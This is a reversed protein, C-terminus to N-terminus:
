RKGGMEGAKQLKSKGAIPKVNQAEQRDPVPCLALREAFRDGDEAKECLPHGCTRRVGTEDGNRPVPDVTHPPYPADAPQYAYFTNRCHPCVMARDKTFVRGGAGVEPYTEPFANRNVQEDCFTQWDLNKM